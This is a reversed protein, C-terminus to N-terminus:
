EDEPGGERASVEVCDPSLWGSQIVRNAEEIADERSNADVEVDYYITEVNVFWKM